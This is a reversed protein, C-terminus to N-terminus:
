NGSEQSDDFHLTTLVFDGSNATVDAVATAVKNQVTIYTSVASSAAGDVVSTIQWESANGASSYVRHLEAGVLRYYKDTLTITYNGTSNRTVSAVGRGYVTAVTSTGNPYWRFALTKPLVNSVNRACYGNRSAM